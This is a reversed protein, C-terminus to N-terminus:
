ILDGGRATAIEGIVEKISELDSSNSGKNLDLYIQKLTEVETEGFDEVKKHVIDELQSQTKGHVELFAALMKPIREKAARPKSAAPEITADGVLSIIPALPKAQGLTLFDAQPESMDGKSKEKERSKADLEDASLFEEETYTGSFEEPFAKRIALSEAVKSLMHRPMDRWFTSGKKFEAWHAIGPMAARFGRKFVGVRSAVPPEDSTWVDRWVGDPGCWQPQTQGEYKGTREAALRYGDISIVITMVNGYFVAYIHKDEPDLNLRNCREIFVAVDLDDGKCFKRKVLAIREAPWEAQEKM